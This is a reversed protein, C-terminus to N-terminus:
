PQQEKEDTNTVSGQSVNDVQTIVRVLRREQRKGANCTLLSVSPESPTWEILLSHGQKTSEPHDCTVVIVKGNSTASVEVKAIQGAVLPADLGKFNFLVSPKSAKLLNTESDEKNLVNIRSEIWHKDENSLDHRSFLSILFATGLWGPGSSEKEHIIEAVRQPPQPGNVPILSRQSRKEIGGKPRNIPRAPSIFPKSTYRDGSTNRTMNPAKSTSSSSAGRSSSSSGAHAGVSTMAVIALGTFIKQV